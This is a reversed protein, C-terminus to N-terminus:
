AWVDDQATAGARQEAVEAFAQAVHRQRGQAHVDGLGAQRAGPQLRLLDVVQHETGGRLDVVVRNEDTALDREVGAQGLM